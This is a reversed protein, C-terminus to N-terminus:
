RVQAAALRADSRINALGGTSDYNHGVFFLNPFDASTVRDHRLAFGKRDLRLSAAFPQLAPRFGTALIITDFPEERQDVFRVGNRTLAALGPRVTIRGAQIEDVLRFGILPIADLASGDRAPLPSPGRRKEVRARVRAVIRDQVPRPLERLVFAVYQVPVGLLTLPVVNAGSRVAISVDVGARALESGIEGGSNGVGVVLVRQNRFEDPRRYEISHMIRGHFQVLGDFSPVVPNSMIGTASIICRARLVDTDTEVRWGSTTRLVQRVSAHTRVPLSFHQAYAALYAIFDDRSPFLPTSSGFRLGPLYSLHKGTHLTLSDYLRHWSCGIRDGRELVVHEVGRRRLERSTALGAPGGGIVIAELM